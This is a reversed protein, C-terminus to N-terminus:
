PMFVGHVGAAIMHDIHKRLGALDVSEDPNMPTVVPPIIGRLKM